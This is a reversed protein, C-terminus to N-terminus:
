KPEQNSTTKKQLFGLTQKKAFENAEIETDFERDWLLPTSIVENGKDEMLVAKPQWKKTAVRQYSCLLVNNNETIKVLNTM